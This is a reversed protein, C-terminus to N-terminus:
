CLVARSSFPNQALAAAPGTAPDGRETLRRNILHVSESSQAACQRIDTQPAPASTRCGSTQKSWAQSPALERPSAMCNRRDSSTNTSIVQASAAQALEPLSLM